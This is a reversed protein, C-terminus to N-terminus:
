ALNDVASSKAALWEEGAWIADVYAANEDEGIEVPLDRSDIESEKGTEEDREIFHVRWGYGLATPRPEIEFREREM